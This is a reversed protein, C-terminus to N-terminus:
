PHPTSNNPEPVPDSGSGANQPLLTRGPIDQGWNQPNALDNVAAGPPAFTADDQNGPYIPPTTLAQLFTYWEIQAESLPTSAQVIEVSPAQSQMSTMSSDPLPYGSAPFKQGAGPVA